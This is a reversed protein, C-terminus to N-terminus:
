QLADLHDHSVRIEVNLDATGSFSRFKEKLTNRIRDCYIYIVPYKVNAAKETLDAPAYLELIQVSTSQDPSMLDALTASVGDDARLKAALQLAASFAANAM